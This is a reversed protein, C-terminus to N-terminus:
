TPSLCPWSSCDFCSCPCIEGFWAHVHETQLALLYVDACKAGGAAYNNVFEISDVDEKIGRRANFLQLRSDPFM